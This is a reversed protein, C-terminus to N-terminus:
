HLLQRDIFRYAPERAEPPFEHQRDPYVAELQGPKFLREVKAITERVGTVDFNADHLPANVFIARPAIAALIDNFDFPM